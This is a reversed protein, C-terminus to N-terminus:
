NESQYAACRRRAELFGQIGFEGGAIGTIIKDRVPPPPFTISHGRRTDAVRQEWLETGTRADLTIPFADLTGFFVRNGMVADASVVDLTGAATGATYVIGDVVLPVGEM